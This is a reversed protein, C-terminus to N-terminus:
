DTFLGRLRDALGGDDLSEVDRKRETAEDRDEMRERLVDERYDQVADARIWMVAALIAGGVMVAVGAWALADSIGLAHALARIM